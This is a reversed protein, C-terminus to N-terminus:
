AAETWHSRRTGRPWAADTIVHVRRESWCLRVVRIVLATVAATATLGAIVHAAELAYAALQLFDHEIGAPGGVRALLVLALAVAVHAGIGGRRRTKRTSHQQPQTFPM